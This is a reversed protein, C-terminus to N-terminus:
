ASEWDASEDAFMDCKIECYLDPDPTLDRRKAPKNATRGNQVARRRECERWLYDLFMQELSMEEFLSCGQAEKELAPPLDIMVSM